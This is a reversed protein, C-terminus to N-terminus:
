RGEEQAASRREILVAGLIILGKVILQTFPSVNLINLLNNMVAFIGAGVMTGGVGGEGGFLSTGGIVAIAIADLEAQEGGLPEAAGLRSVVIMAAIAACMGSIVYASFIVRKTPIGSLRAAERNDGVAYIYRGFTTHRLVFWAVIALAIFVLFSVPVGLIEGNGLWNLQQKTELSLSVPKGGAVTLTAGRAIVLMGLTMIFPQLGGKTIGLGNLAGVGGGVLVAFLIALPWPVGGSLAIAFTVGVFGLMSGVSLDIGATLIVFTMGIGLIAASSVQRSVNAFNGPTLFHIPDLITGLALLLLFALVIGRTRVLRWLRRSNTRVRASEGARGGRPAEVKAPERDIVVAGDM